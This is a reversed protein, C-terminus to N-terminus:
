SSTGRQLLLLGVGKGLMLFGERRGVEWCSRQLQWLRWPCRQALPYQVARHWAAEAYHYGEGGCGHGEEKQQQQWGRGSGGGQGLDGRCCDSLVGRGCQGGGLEERAAAAAPTGNVAALGALIVLAAPGWAAAAGAPKSL